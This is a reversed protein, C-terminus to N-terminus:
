GGPLWKAEGQLCSVVTVPAAVKHNLSEASRYRPTCVGEWCCTSRLVTPGVHLSSADKPLSLHLYDNFQTLSHVVPSSMQATGQM